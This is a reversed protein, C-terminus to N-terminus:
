HLGLSWSSVQLNHLAHVHNKAISKIFSECFTWISVGTWKVGAGPWDSVNIDELVGPLTKSSICIRSMTWSDWQGRLSSPYTSDQFPVQSHIMFSKYFYEWKNSVMELELLFMLTRWSKLFLNSQYTSDQCLVHCSVLTWTSVLMWKVGDGPGDPVKINDMAGPLSKASLHVGSM